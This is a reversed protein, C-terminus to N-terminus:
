AVRRRDRRLVFQGYVRAAEDILIREVQPIERARRRLSARVVDGLDDVTHLRVGAIDAVAPDVVRPMSLDVIQLPREAPASACMAADILLGSARAAAIVGDVRALEGAVDDLPIAQAGYRGAAERAHHM